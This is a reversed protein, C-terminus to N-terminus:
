KRGLIRYTIANVLESTDILPRGHGKRKITSASLPPSIKGDLIRQRCDEAYTKGLIELAGVPTLGGGVIDYTLQTVLDRYADHADFTSRMFSRAPV